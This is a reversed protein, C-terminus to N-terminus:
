CLTYLTSLGQILVEGALFSTASDLSRKYVALLKYISFIAFSQRLIGTGDYTYHLYRLSQPNHVEKGKGM